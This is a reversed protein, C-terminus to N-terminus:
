SIDIPLSFNLTNEVRFQLKQKGKNGIIIPINNNPIQKSPPYKTKRKDKIIKIKFPIKKYDIRNFTSLTSAYLKNNFKTFSLYSYFNNIILKHINNRPQTRSYIEFSINSSFQIKNQFFNILEELTYINQITEGESFWRSM